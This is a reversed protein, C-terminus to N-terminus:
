GQDKGFARALIKQITTVAMKEPPTFSVRAKGEGEGKMLIEGTPLVLALSVKAETGLPSGAGAGKGGPSALELLADAVLADALAARHEETYTKAGMRLLAQQVAEESVIHFGPDFSLLSARTAREIIRCQVGAQCGVTVIAIQQLNETFRPQATVEVKYEERLAFVAGLIVLLVLVVLVVVCGIRM